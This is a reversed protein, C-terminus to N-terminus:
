NPGVLSQFWSFLSRQPPVGEANSEVGLPLHLLERVSSKIEDCKFPVDLVCDAGAESLAAQHQSPVGVALTPTRKKWKLTRIADATKTYNSRPSPAGSASSLKEPILIVLDFREQSVQWDLEDLHAARTCHVVAKEDCVDRVLAEILNSIRGESNALLLNVTKTDRM